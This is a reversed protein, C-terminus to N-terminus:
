GQGQSGVLTLLAMEPPRCFRVPWASTGIGGSVYLHRGDIEHLGYALRRPLASQTLIPGFGPLCVQGGHTHGAVTLLMTPPLRPFIDPMHALMIAPERGQLDALTRALDTRGTWGDDVGAIWIDRDRVRVRTATNRLVCIGTRALHREVREGGHYWDHNGLVALTPATDALPRLVDAVPEIPIRRVLRTKKTVFDGPLLVLDPREATMRRVLDAIRPLTVHPWAAHLDSIVGIRLSPWGAPWGRSCVTLRRLRLLRPEIAAAYLAVASAAGLTLGLISM